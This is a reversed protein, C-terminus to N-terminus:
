SMRSKEDKGKGKAKIKKSQKMGRWKQCSWIETVPSQIGSISNTLAKSTTALSM